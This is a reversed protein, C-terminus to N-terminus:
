HKPLRTHPLPMGRRTRAPGAIREWGDWRLNRWSGTTPQRWKASWTFRDKSMQGTIRGDHKLGFGSRRPGNWYVRGDAFVKVVRKVNGRQYAYYRAPSSTTTIFERRTPASPRSVRDKIIARVKFRWFGPKSVPVPYSLRRASAATRLASTNAVVTRWPGNGHQARIRYGEPKQRTSGPRWSVRAAALSPEAIVALPAAPTPLQPLQAAMWGLMDQGCMTYAGAPNTAKMTAGASNGATCMANNLPLVPWRFQATPTNTYGDTSIAWGPWQVPTWQGSGSSAPAQFNASYFSPNSYVVPTSRYIYLVGSPPQYGNPFGTGDSVFIALTGANQVADCAPVNWFGAFTDTGPLYAGTDFFCQGTISETGWWFLEYTNTATATEGTYIILGYLGGQAGWSATDGLGAQQLAQWIPLSSTSTPQIGISLWLATTAPVWGNYTGWTFDGWTSNAFQSSTGVSGGCPATVSSVPLQCGDTQFDNLDMLWAFPQRLTPNEAMVQGGTGWSYPAGAVMFQDSITDVVLAVANAASNCATVMDGNALPPTCVASPDTIPWQTPQGSADLALIHMAEVYLNLAQVQVQYWYTLYTYLQSYYAQEWGFQSTGAYSWLAQACAPLSGDDSTGVLVNDLDHLAVRMSGSGTVTGQAWTVLQSSSPAVQGPVNQAAALSQSVLTNYEEQASQITALAPTMTASQVSCDAYQAQQALASIQKQLGQIQADISSIQTQIGTIQDEIQELQEQTQAETSFSSAIGVAALMWGVYDVGEAAVSSGQVSQNATSEALGQFLSLSQTLAPLTQPAVPSGTAQAPSAGILVTTTIAAALYARISM